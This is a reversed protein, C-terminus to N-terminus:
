VYVSKIHSFFLFQVCLKQLDWIRWNLFHYQNNTKIGLTLVQNFWKKAGLVYIWRDWCFGKDRKLFLIKLSVLITRKIINSLNLYFILPIIDDCLTQWLIATHFTALPNLLIIQLCNNHGVNSDAIRCYQTIPLNDSTKLISLIYSYVHSM